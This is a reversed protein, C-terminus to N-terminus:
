FGASSGGGSLWGSCCGGALGMSGLANILGTVSASLVNPLPINSPTSGVVISCDMELINSEVPPDM